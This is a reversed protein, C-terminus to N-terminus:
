NAALRSMAADIGNSSPGGNSAAGVRVLRPEHVLAGAAIPLLQLQEALTRAPRVRELAEQTRVLESMMVHDAGRLSGRELLTRQRYDEAVDHRLLATAAYLWPHQEDLTGVYLGTTGHSLDLQLGGFAALMGVGLPILGVLLSAISAAQVIRAFPDGLSALAQWALGLGALGILAIGAVVADRIWRARPRMPCRAFEAELAALEADSLGALERAGGLPSQVSLRAVWRAFELEACTKKATPSYFGRARMLRERSLISGDVIQDLLSMDCEGQPWYMDYPSLLKAATSRLL